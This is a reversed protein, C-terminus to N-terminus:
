LVFSLLLALVGGIQLAFGYSWTLLLWKLLTKPVSQGYVTKMGWFGYFAMYLTILVILVIEFVARFPILLTLGSVVFYVTHIHLSFVFHEVYRHPSRFYLIKLLLAFVPMMVFMVKPLVDLLHNLYLAPTLSKAAIVREVFYRTLWDDPSREDQPLKAQAKQYDAWTKPTQNWDITRGFFRVPKESSFSLGLAKPLKRPHTHFTKGPLIAASAASSEAKQQEATQQGRVMGRELRQTFSSQALLYFFLASVFLYMRFPSLYRQRKGEIYHRTLYGPRFLLPFMTRFFKNDAKIFEDWVDRFLESIHIAHPTNEQGCEPCFKRSEAGCNLCLQPRLADRKEQRAKMKESVRSVAKQRILGM